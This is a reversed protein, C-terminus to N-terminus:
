RAFSRTRQAAWVAVAIGLIVIAVSIVAPWGGVDWLSSALVSGLAGGVFSAVVFVTNLRSRSTPDIALMRAQTLVMVCQIGVSYLAIAVIIATLSTAGFGAFSLGTLAVALGAGIVPTACGRDYLRGVRMAAVAGVIGVLSMLGIQSPSLDFPEETLLFTLGTWFLTFTAMSAAGVVGLWRVAASLAPARLVSAVVEPYPVRARPPLTPLMRHMVAALIAMVVAVFGYLPRWGTLETIFGSIARSITIGLLLGSAVIGLMRGREDDAALDGALPALLQGAVTSAGVLTLTILLVAFSPALASLALMIAALLMLAPILRRRDLIDGLPVLLFVGLAYGIQTVAILLGATSTSVSLRDAIIALIPQAGYLSGVAAGGAVAFLIALGTSM